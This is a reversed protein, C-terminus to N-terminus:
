KGIWKQIREKLRRLDYGQVIEIGIDQARWKLDDNPKRYSVLMAQTRLGAAKSVTQMRYLVDGAGERALNSTKCEIAFLTDKALFAVDLENPVNGRSKITLNQKPRTQIRDPPISSVIDHVYTELWGGCVYIRAEVNKFEIRDSTFDLLGQEKCLELLPLVKKMNESNEKSLGKFLLKKNRPDQVLYNLTGLLDAYKEQDNILEKVFTPKNLSSQKKEQETSYGYVDLYDELTLGSDIPLESFEKSFKRGLFTLSNRDKRVYFIPLDLEDFVEYAAFAMIKSGGTANLAIKEHEHMSLYELVVNHVSMFSNEIPLSEVTFGNKKLVRGLNEARAKEEPTVLMVVRKKKPAFKADLVPLLNPATQASVLCLHADFDYNM